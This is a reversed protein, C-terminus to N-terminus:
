KKLRTHKIHYIKNHMLLHKSTNRPSLYDDRPTQNIHTELTVESVTRHKWWTKTVKKMTIFHRVPAADALTQRPQCKLSPATWRTSSLTEFHSTTTHSGVPLLQSHLHKTGEGETRESWVGSQHRECGRYPEQRLKGGQRLRLAM